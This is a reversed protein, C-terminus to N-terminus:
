EEKLRGIWAQWPEDPIVQVVFQPLLPTQTGRPVKFTITAVGEVLGLVSIGDTSVAPILSVVSNDSAFWSTSGLDDGPIIVNLADVVVSKLEIVQGVRIQYSQMPEDLKLELVSM